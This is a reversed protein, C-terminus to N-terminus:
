AGTNGGSQGSPLPVPWQAMVVDLVRRLECVDERSLTGTFKSALNLPYARKITMTAATGDPVERNVIFVIENHALSTSYVTAQTINM